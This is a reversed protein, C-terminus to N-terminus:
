DVRQKATEEATAASPWVADRGDWIKRYTTTERACTSDGEDDKGDAGVSYLVFEGNPLVQYRLVGGDMDDRPLQALYGPVLLGLQPPLQGTRAHFRRLAIATITMRRQTDATLTRYIAPNDIGFPGSSFLFRFRDFRSSESDYSEPVLPSIASHRNGSNASRLASWSNTRAYRGREIIVQWRRLAQFTDRDAWAMRWLPVNVSKLIFGDTVFSNLSGWRARQEVVFDLTPKSSKIQRFFDLTMAREMEFSAAMDSSFDAREWAKQLEELQEDSWDEAQLVEWTANFALSACAQRVLQFIVMPETKQSVLNVLGLLHEYAADLRGQSLEYDTAVNLIQAARKITALSGIKFDVFSKEYDFDSYFM